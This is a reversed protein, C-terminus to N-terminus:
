TDLNTALTNQPALPFNTSHTFFNKKHFQYIRNSYLKRRLLNWDFATRHAMVIDASHVLPLLNEEFVQGRPKGERMLMEDSIGTLEVIKETQPPYELSGVFNHSGWKNKGFIIKLM